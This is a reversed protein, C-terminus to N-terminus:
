SLFGDCHGFRVNECVCERILPIAGCFWIFWLKDLQEDITVTCVDDVDICYHTNVLLVISHTHTIAILKTDGFRAHM